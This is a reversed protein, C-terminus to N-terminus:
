SPKGAHAGCTPCHNSSSNPFGCKGKNTCYLDGCKQCKYLQQHCKPCHAAM